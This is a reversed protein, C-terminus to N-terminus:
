GRSIASNREWAVSNPNLARSTSRIHACRDRIANMAPAAGCSSVASCYVVALATKWSVAIASRPRGFDNDVGNNPNSATINWRPCAGAGLRPSPPGATRDRLDVPGVDGGV